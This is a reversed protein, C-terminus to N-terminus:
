PTTARAGKWPCVSRTRSPTLAGSRVSSAPFYANGEVMVVDDSSALRESGVWASRAAPTRFAKRLGVLVLLAAAAGALVLAETTASPFGLVTPGRLLDARALGLTVFASIVFGAAAAWGLRSAASRDGARLDQGVVWPWAGALLVPALHWTTAPRWMALLVWTLAVAVTWGVGSGLSRPGATSVGGVRAASASTEGM